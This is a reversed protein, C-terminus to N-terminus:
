CGNWGMMKSLADDNVTIDISKADADNLVLVMESTIAPVNSYLGIGLHGSVQLDIKLEYLLHPHYNTFKRQSTSKASRKSSEVM